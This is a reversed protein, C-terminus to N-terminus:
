KHENYNYNNYKFFPPPLSSPLLRPSFPLPLLLSGSLRCNFLYIALADNELMYLVSFMTIGFYLHAFTVVPIADGSFSLM